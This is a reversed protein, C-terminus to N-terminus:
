EEIRWVIRQSRTRPGDSGPPAFRARASLIRCAEADLMPSASAETVACSLVRGNDSITLTVRTATEGVRIIEAGVTDPQNAQSEPTPAPPAAQEVWQPEAPLAPNATQALAALLWLEM